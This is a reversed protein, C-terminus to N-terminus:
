FAFSEVDYYYLDTGLGSIGFLQFQYTRHFSVVDVLFLVLFSITDKEDYPILICFYSIM